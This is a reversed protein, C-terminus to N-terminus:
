PLFNQSYFDIYSQNYYSRYNENDTSTSLHTGFYDGIAARQEDLSGRKSLLPHDVPLGSVGIDVGSNQLVEDRIQKEVITAHGEDALNAKANSAIYDHQRAMEIQHDTLGQGTGPPQYKGQPNGRFDFHGLEHAVSSLQDETSGPGVHIKPNPDDQGTIFSGKPSAVFTGGAARFEAVLKDATPSAQALQDAVAEIKADDADKAKTAETKAAAATEFGDTTSAAGTVKAAQDAVERDGVAETARNVEARESASVGKQETTGRTNGTHTASTTGGTSGSGGVKGSDDAM